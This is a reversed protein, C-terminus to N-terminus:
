FFDLFFLVDSSSILLFCRRLWADVDHNFLVEAQSPVGQICDCWHDPLVNDYLMQLTLMTTGPNDM